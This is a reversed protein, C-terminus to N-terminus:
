SFNLLNVKPKHCIDILKKFSEESFQRSFRLHITYSSFLDFKAGVILGNVKIHPGKEFRITLTTMKGLLTRGVDKNSCHIYFCAGGISIDELWGYFASGVQSGNQDIIQAFIKGALKFRKQQRRELAKNKLLIETNKAQLRSCYNELKKAIYPFEKEIEQIDSRDLFRIKVPSVTVVSTTCTSINFFTEQGATDGSDLQKLFFERDGQKYIIKVRGQDIFFLANNLKGQQILVKDPPFERQKLKMYFASAEERSLFDYLKEWILKHDKDIANAKEAEIVEASDIIRALAMPDTEILKDRWVNAKTFDKACALAVVLEYIQKVAPETEGQEILRNAEKEMNKLIPETNKEDPFSYDEEKFLTLQDFEKNRANM